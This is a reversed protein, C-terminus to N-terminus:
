SNAEKQTLANLKADPSGSVGGSLGAPLRSPWVKLTFRTMYEDLYFGAFLWVKLRHQRTSDPAFRLYAYVTALTLILTCALVDFGPQLSTSTVLWGELLTKQAVYAAGVLTALGLGVRFSRGGAPYQSILTALALALLLWPAFASGPSWVLLAILFLSALGGAFVAWRTLLVQPRTNIQQRLFNEVADGASLFAHAKYCSHALLHLLALAYLGLAIEVLMIGMQAATSWALRVKVSIRTSMVLAAVVATLGAVLLLLFQAFVAAALLPAFVLLLYGGLNIIGAHLLASVPTPTEVVQMLWGHVPLQACKILATLVLFVAALQEAPLLERAAVTEVIQSILWTDHVLYLLAAASILSLEAARALLFKKRAALRARPREPYFLLLQHLGLSIGIWGAILMLLHNSSVVLTVAALTALMWALFDHARPEGDLYRRSYRLIIFGMFTSLLLLAQSAPAQSMWGASAAEFNGTYRLTLSVIVALVLAAGLREATKWGILRSRAMPASLGFVVAPLLALFAILIAFWDM